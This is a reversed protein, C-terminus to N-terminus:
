IFLQKRDVARSSKFPGVPAKNKSFFTKKGDFMRYLRTFFVLQFGLFFSSSKGVARIVTKPAVQGVPFVIKGLPPRMERNDMFWTLKEGM